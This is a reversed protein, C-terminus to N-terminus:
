QRQGREQKFAMIFKWAEVYQSLCIKVPFLEDVDPPTDLDKCEMYSVLTDKLSKLSLVYVEYIIM